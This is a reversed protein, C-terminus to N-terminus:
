HADSDIAPVVGALTLDYNRVLLARLLRLCMELAVATLAALAVPVVSYIWVMRVPLTAATINLGRMVLDRSEILLVVCIWAILLNIALAVCYLLRPPLSEAFVAIAVHHSSRYGIPAALLVSWVLAMRALDENWDLSVNFASRAVIQALAVALMLALLLAAFSRGWRAIPANITAFGRILADIPRLV